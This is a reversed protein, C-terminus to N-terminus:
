SLGLQRELDEVEAQAEHVAAIRLEALAIRDHWEAPTSRTPDGAKALHSVNAALEELRCIRASLTVLRPMRQGMPQRSADLLDRDLAVALSEVEDALDHVLDRDRGRRPAPCAERLSLVSARLRRHSAAARSPVIMWRIPVHLRHRTSIQNSRRVLALGVLASTLMLAMLCALVLFVEVM